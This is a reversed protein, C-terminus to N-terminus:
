VGFPNHQIQRLHRTLVQGAQGADRDRLAEVIARCQAERIGQLTRPHALPAQTLWAGDDV